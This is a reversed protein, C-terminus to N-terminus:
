DNQQNTQPLTGNTLGSPSGVWWGRAKDEKQFQLSTSDYRAGLIKFVM